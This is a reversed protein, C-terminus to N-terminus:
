NIFHFYCICDWHLFDNLDHSGVGHLWWIQHSLSHLHEVTQVVM